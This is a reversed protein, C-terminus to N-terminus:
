RAVAGLTAERPPEARQTEVGLVDRGLGPNGPPDLVRRQQAQGARRRTMRVRSAPSIARSRRAPAYRTASSSGFFCNAVTAARTPNRTLVPLSRVRHALHLPLTSARILASSTAARSSIGSRTFRAVLSNQRHSRHPFAYQTPGFDSFASSNMSDSM